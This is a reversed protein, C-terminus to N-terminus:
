GSSPWGPPSSARPWCSSRRHPLHLPPREALSSTAASCWTARAPSTATPIPALHRRRDPRRPRRRQRGRGREGLARITGRPPATSPSAAAAGAAIDALEVATGDAKGFVVYSQGSGDGNPDAGPAGVILDALGDGNVDGAGRVSPRLLRGRRHRQPRLRRRPRRRHPWSSRTGRRRASCWTARRRLRRRQPRCPAGVLLDAFGDGNVDGGRWRRARTTVWAAGNLVFGGSAAPSRPWSSPARAAKGFM